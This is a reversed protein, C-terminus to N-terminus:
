GKLFANTNERMQRIPAYILTDDYSRISRNAILSAAHMEFRVNLTEFRVNLTEFRVNTTEFRVNATEFSVAKVPKMCPKFLSISVRERKSRFTQSKYLLYLIYFGFM